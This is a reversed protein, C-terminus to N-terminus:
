GLLAKRTTGFFHRWPLSATNGLVADPCFLESKVSLVGALMIYGCLRVTKGIEIKLTDGMVGWAARENTYVEDWGDLMERMVIIGTFSTVDAFVNYQGRNLFTAFGTVPDIDVAGPSDTSWEVDVFLTDGTLNDIALAIFTITDGRFGRYNQPTIQLDLDSRDYITVTVSDQQAMVPVALVFLM